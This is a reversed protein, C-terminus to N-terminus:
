SGKEQYFSWKAICYKVEKITGLTWEGDPSVYCSVNGRDYKQNNLLTDTVRVFFGLFVPFYFFVWM